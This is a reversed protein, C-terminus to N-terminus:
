LKTNILAACHYYSCDIDTVEGLVALSEVLRPYEERYLYRHGVSEKHGLRGDSGCGWSFVLGKETLALSHLGGVAVKVVRQTLFHQQDIMRPWEVPDMSGHGLKGKSGDGWSYVTGTETCALMHRHHEGKSCSCARNSIFEYCTDIFIM